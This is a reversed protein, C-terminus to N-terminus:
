KLHRLFRWAFWADGPGYRRGEGIFTKADRRIIQLDRKEMAWRLQLHAAINTGARGPVSVKLGSMGKSFWDLGFGAMRSIISPIEDWRSEQQLQAASVGYEALLNLPLREAQACEGPAFSSVLRHLGSAAALLDLNHSGIEAGALALEVELEPAVSESLRELLGAEDSDPIADVQMLAGSVLALLQANSIKARAGSEELVRLVPHLSPSDADKVLEESWWKLKAWKVTDDVPSYPINCISHILAYLALVADSQGSQLFRSTFEFLGGPQMVLERCHDLEVSTIGTVQDRM